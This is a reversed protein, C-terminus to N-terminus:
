SPGMGPSTKQQQQPVATASASVQTGNPTTAESTVGPSTLNAAVAINSSSESPLKSSVFDTSGIEPYLLSSEYAIQSDPKETAKSQSNGEVAKYVADKWKAAFAAREEPSPLKPGDPNITIPLKGDLIEQRIEAYPRAFDIGKQDYALVTDVAQETETAGRVLWANDTMYQPSKGVQLRMASGAIGNQRTNFNSSLHMGIELERAEHQIRAVEREREMGAPLQLAKEMDNKYAEGIANSIFEGTKIDYNTGVYGERIGYDSQVRQTVSTNDVGAGVLSQVPTVVKSSHFPIENDGAQIHKSLLSDKFYYHENGHGTVQNRYGSEDYQYERPVYSNVLNREAIHHKYDPSFEKIKQVDELADCAAEMSAYFGAHDDRNDKYWDAATRKQPNVAVWEKASEAYYDQYNRAGPAAKEAWEVAESEYYQGVERKHGEPAKEAWEIAPKWDEPKIYQVFRNEKSVFHSLPKADPFKEAWAAKATRTAEDSESGSSGSETLSPKPRSREVIEHLKRSFKYYAQAQPDNPNASLLSEATNRRIATAHVAKQYRAEQQSAHSSNSKESKRSENDSEVDSAPQSAHASAPQSGDPTKDPSDSFLEDVQNNGPVTM